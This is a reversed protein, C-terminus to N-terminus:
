ALFLNMRLKRLYTFRMEQSLIWIIGLFLVLDVRGSLLTTLIVMREKNSRTRTAGSRYERVVLTTIVDLISLLITRNRQISANYATGHPSTSPAHLPRPPCQNLLDCNSISISLSDLLIFVSIGDIDHKKSFVQTFQSSFLFLFLGILPM